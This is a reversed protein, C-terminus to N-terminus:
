VTKSSAQDLSLKLVFRNSLQGMVSWRDSCDAMFWRTNKQLEGCVARVSLTPSLTTAEWRLCKEHSVVVYEFINPVMRACVKFREFEARYRNADEGEYSPLDEYEIKDLLIGDGYSYFTGSDGVHKRFTDKVMVLHVRLLHRERKAFSGVRWMSLPVDFPESGVMHKPPSGNWLRYTQAGLTVFGDGNVVIVDSKKHLACIRQTLWNTTNESWAEQSEDTAILSGRHLLLLDQAEDTPNDFFIDVWIRYSEEEPFVYEIIRDIPIEVGSATRVSVCGTGSGVLGNGRDDKAESVTSVCGTGRSM